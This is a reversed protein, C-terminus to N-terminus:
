RSAIAARVLRELEDVADELRDNVVLHDFEDKAQLERAATALRDSVQAPTDTGRAALREALADLSPPALFVLLAEPLRDRVQRAGQVEIELVVPHGSATRREIDSRLTGYHRGAYEAHELFEGAHVRRAFEPEDIFHYDV